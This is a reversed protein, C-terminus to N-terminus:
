EYCYGIWEQQRKCEGMVGEKDGPTEQVGILGVVGAQSYDKDRGGELTGRKTGKWVRKRGGLLM